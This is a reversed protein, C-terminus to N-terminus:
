ETTKKLNFSGESITKVSGDGNVNKCEFSFTGKINTDTEESISVSGAVADAFPAQWIETTSAAPNSLNVETESYSATNFVGLSSGDFEYTKGAGEYGFVSMMFANGDSNTAIIILNNGNNAVTAQSSIELSQYTTGNVKAVLTGGPANGGDGGDDSSSCSNFTLLSGVMVFLMIQKLNRM